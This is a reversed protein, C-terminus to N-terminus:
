ATGAERKGSLAPRARVPAQCARGARAAPIHHYTAPDGERPRGGIEMVARFGEAKGDLVM